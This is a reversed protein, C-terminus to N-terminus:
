IIGDKCERGVGKFYFDADFLKTGKVMMLTVSDSYGVINCM